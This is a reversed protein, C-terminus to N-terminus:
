KVEKSNKLSYRLIFIGIIIFPISLLQGLNLVMSQEFDVQVDKVFEIFFRVSFLTILFISFLYGKKEGAGKKLYLFYLVIFIILYSFAEYLQAPHRPSILSLDCDYPPPCDNRPFYFGWFLKTVKGVIESNIFNGLRILLGSLAVVIVIRDLIWLYPKKVKRVFLFLAFLIGIAAGHSALGGEWVMLIELPNKLYYDPQYFLCHGLRAGLITGLAMYITLKDLVKQDINERKFMKSVIIYGFFFAGAFLLGYWRVTLGGVLWIDDPVSFIEPKVNWTIYNLIM